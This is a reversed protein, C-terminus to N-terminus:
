STINLTCKRVLISNANIADTHSKELYKQSCRASSPDSCLRECGYFWLLQVGVTQLLVMHPSQPKNRSNHFVTPTTTFNKYSMLSLWIFASFYAHNSMILVHSISHCTPTNHSKLIWRWFWTSSKVSVVDVSRAAQWSSDVIWLLFHISTFLFSLPQQAYVYKCQHLNKKKNQPYVSSLHLIMNTTCWLRKRDSWQCSAIFAPAWTSKVSM